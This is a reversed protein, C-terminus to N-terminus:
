WSLSAALVYDDMSSGTVHPVAGALMAERQELQAMFGNLGVISQDLSAGDTVATGFGLDRGLLAIRYQRVSSWDQMTAAVSDFSYRENSSADAAIQLFLDNGRTALEYNLLGISANLSSDDHVDRGPLSAPAAVATSDPMDSSAIAVTAFDHPRPEILATLRDEQQYSRQLHSNMVLMSRDLSHDSNVPIDFWNQAQGLVPLTLGVLLAPLTLRATRALAKLTRTTM